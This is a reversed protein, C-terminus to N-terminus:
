EFHLQENEDPEDIANPGCGGNKNSVPTVYLSSPKSSRQGRLRRASRRGDCNQAGGSKAQSKKSKKQAYPNTTAGVNMKTSRQSTRQSVKLSIPNVNDSSDEVVLQSEGIM